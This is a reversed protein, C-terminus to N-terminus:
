ILYRVKVVNIHHKQHGLIIFGLARVSMTNGGITGARLLMEDSFSQFLSITSTRVTKFEAILDSKSRKNADSFPVYDNEEFGSLDTQDNRAFRLARYSFIRESDILHVIVEKITWKNEAYAFNLKDESLSNILDVFENGILELGTLIDLEQGIEEIYPKYFPAYESNNLDNYPM